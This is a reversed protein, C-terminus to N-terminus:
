SGRPRQLVRFVSYSYSQKISRFHIQKTIVSMERASIGDPSTTRGIFQLPVVFVLIKTSSRSQQGLVLGAALILLAASLAAPGRPFSKM